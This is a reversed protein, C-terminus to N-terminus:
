AMVGEAQELGEEEEAEKKESAWTATSEKPTHAKGAALIISLEALLSPEIEHRSDPLVGTPVKSIADQLQSLLAGAVVISDDIYNRVEGMSLVANNILTIFEELYQASEKRDSIVNLVMKGKKVLDLVWALDQYDETNEINSIIFNM